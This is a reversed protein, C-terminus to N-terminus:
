CYRGSDGIDFRGRKHFTIRHADMPTLLEVITIPRPSTRTLVGLVGRDVELLTERLRRYQVERGQLDVENLEPKDRRLRELGRDLQALIHDLRQLLDARHSSMNIGSFDERISIRMRFYGDDYLSDWESWILLLYSKLIEIDKLNRIMQVVYSNSGVNRGKCVPPLSPRLKLWSWSDGYIHPPFPKLSAIQLLADVVSPAIEEEKPVTSAAAAWVRAPGQGFGWERWPIYPSALMLARKSSVHSTGDLLANMFPQVRRWWFRVLQTAKAADLFVDLIKQQRNEERLIAYPFLITIAKRKRRLTDRDRAEVLTELEGTILGM